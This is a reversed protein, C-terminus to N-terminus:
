GPRRSPFCPGCGTGRATSARGTARTRCRRPLDLRLRAPAHAVRVRVDVVVPHRVEVGAHRVRGVARQLGALHGRACPRPGVVEGVRHAQRARPGFRARAVADKGLGHAVRGAFELDRDALDAELRGVGLGVRAIGEIRGRQHLIRGIRAQVLDEDLVRVFLVQDLQDVLVAVTAPLARELLSREVPRLAIGVARDRGRVVLLRGLVHQDHLAVVPHVLLQFNM